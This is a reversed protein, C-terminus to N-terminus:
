YSLDPDHPPLCATDLDATMAAISLRYDALVQSSHALADWLRRADSPIAHGQRDVTAVLEPHQALLAAVSSTLAEDLVALVALQPALRLMTPTAPADLHRCTM